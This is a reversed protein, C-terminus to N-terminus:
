SNNKRLEGGHEVMRRLEGGNQAIRRWEGNGHSDAMRWLERGHGDSVFQKEAIRRWEGGNEVKRRLEGGNEMEMVTRWEGCNKTQM